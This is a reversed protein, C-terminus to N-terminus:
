LNLRTPFRVQRGSRTRTIPTSSTVTPPTITPPTITPTIDPSLTSPLTTNSHDIHASKLRDISM